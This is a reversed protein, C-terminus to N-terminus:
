VIWHVVKAALKLAAKGVAKVVTVAVEAYGNVTCPTLNGDSGCSDLSGLLEAGPITLTTVYFLDGTSDLYIWTECFAPAAALAMLPVVLALAIMKKM